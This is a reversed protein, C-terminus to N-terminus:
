WVNNNYKINAVHATPRSQDHIITLMYCYPRTVDKLYQKHPKIHFNHPIELM